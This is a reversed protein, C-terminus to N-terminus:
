GFGGNRSNDFRFRRCDFRFLRFGNSCFLRFLGNRTLHTGSGDKNIVAVQRAFAINVVGDFVVFVRGVVGEFGYRHLFLPKSGGLRRKM